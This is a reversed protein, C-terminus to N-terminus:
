PKPKYEALFAAPREVSVQMLLPKDLSGKQKQEWIELSHTISDLIQKTAPGVDAPKARRNWDEPNCARIGCEFCGYRKWGGPLETSAIGEGGCFPCPELKVCENM